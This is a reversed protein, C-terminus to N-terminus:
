LLRVGYIKMERTGVVIMDDFIVPSGEVNGNLLLSDKIVGTQPDILHMMGDSDCQILYPQGDQAYTLAPSSWGYSLFDLDWVLEGGSKKFALMQGAMTNHVKSINFIVLDKIPGQGVVPTSLAGGNVDADYACKIKHEWVLAGTLANIKRMYSYGGPGQLDVECATYLFPTGDDEIDLVLSADTDDTIDRLWIPRLTNIDLCLLVGGNDATFLLNGYAAPASELGLKRGWPNSYTFKVIEPDISLTGALRDFKTNLKGFYIMGNEGCQIFTDGDPNILGTSDNAGWGRPALPDDWPLAFLMDQNILSYIRFGAPGSGRIGPGATLLPYGRPDVAVSGKIVADTWIPPRSQSGDDLDLFYIHGDMTGYIVEKFDKKIKKELNLNMLGKLEEDWQVIAPQGNWGVGTWKDIAGIDISWALKLKRRRVKPRGYAPRDHFPGGRFATVMPRRAYQGKLSFYIPEERVYDNLQANNKYIRWSFHRHRELRAEPDIREPDIEIKRPWTLIGYKGEQFEAMKKRATELEHQHRFLNFLGTLILAVWLALGLLKLYKLRMLRVQIKLVM